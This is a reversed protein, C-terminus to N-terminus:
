IKFAEVSKFIAWMLFILMSIGAFILSAINVGLEIGDRHLRRDGRENQSQDNDKLEYTSLIVLNLFLGIAWCIKQYIVFSDKKTLNYLLASRKKLNVNVRMEELLRDLNGMLAEQPAELDM